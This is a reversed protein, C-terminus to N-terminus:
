GVKWLKIMSDYVGVESLNDADWSAVNGKLIQAGNDAYSQFEITTDSINALSFEGYTFHTVMGNGGGSSSNSAYDVNTSILSTNNDIDRLRSQNRYGDEIGYLLAWIEVLSDGDALDFQYNGFDTATVISEDDQWLHSLKRTNWVDNTLTWSSTIREVIVAPSVETLAKVTKANEVVLANWLTHPVVFGDTQDTPITYAM